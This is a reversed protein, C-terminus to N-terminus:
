SSMLLTFLFLASSGYLLTYIFHLPINYKLYTKIKTEDKLDSTSNILREVRGFGTFAHLIAMILPVSVAFVLPFLGLTYNLFLSFLSVVFQGIMVIFHFLPLRKEERIRAYIVFTEFHRQRLLYNFYQGLTLVYMLMMGSMLATYSIQFCLVLVNM